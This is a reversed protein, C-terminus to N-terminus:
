RAASTAGALTTEILAEYVEIVKSLSYTEIIRVRAATGLRLRLAPDRLLTQLCRAIGSEDKLGAVLGHTGNEVLQMNAPIDSVVSALGVSMAEILSCPLGELSSVLAFVDCAQMWHRVASSPVMGTFRVRGELGRARVLSELEVRCPGDGVLVLESEPVSSAVAAFGNVLTTLEKEPALRGAYLISQRGPALGLQQRLASREAASVPAFLETDVPNPMWMLKRSDIGAEAAEERMGDNLVMIRESWKRLFWIELRGLRSRSLARILNSGSFKMLIPKGAFHAAPLGTTLHLGSMLFYVVDYHKRRSFLRWAIGLAYRYSRWPEELGTGFIRVPIGEPDVWEFQAPM